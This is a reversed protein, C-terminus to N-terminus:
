FSHHRGLESSRTISAIAFASYGAIAIFVMLRVAGGDM